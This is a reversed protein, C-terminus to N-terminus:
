LKFTLPGSTKPDTVGRLFRGLSDTVILRTRGFDIPHETKGLGIVCMKGDPLDVVALAAGKTLDIQTGKYTLTNGQVAFGAKECLDRMVPWTEPSGVLFKGAPDFPESANQIRGGANTLWDKHAPDVIKASRALLDPLMVPSEQPTMPRVAQRWPDVSVLAPRPGPIAITDNKGNLWITRFRDRGEPSRFQVTLPM